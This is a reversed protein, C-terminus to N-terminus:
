QIQSSFQNYHCAFSKDDILTKMNRKVCLYNVSENPNPAMVTYLWQTTIVLTCLPAVNFVNEFYRKGELFESVILVIDM